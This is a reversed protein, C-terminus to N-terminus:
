ALVEEKILPMTQDVNIVAVSNGTKTGDTFVVWWRTPRAGWYIEPRDHYVREALLPPGSAICFHCFGPVPGPYDASSISAHQVAEAKEGKFDFCVERVWIYAKRESCAWCMESRIEAKETLLADKKALLIKEATTLHRPKALNPPSWRFWGNELKEERLEHSPMGATKGCVM